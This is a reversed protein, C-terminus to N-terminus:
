RLVLGEYQGVHRARVMRGEVRRAGGRSGADSMPPPQLPGDLRREPPRQGSFVPATVTM